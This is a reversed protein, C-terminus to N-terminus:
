YGRTVDVRNLVDQGGVFRHLNEVFIEVKAQDEGFHGGASHQTLIVNPMSWLPSEVPLPEKETVDLVAGALGGDQLSAILAREDTTNGRGVSAYLSNSAMAKFFSGDVFKDATGPLTNILIAAGPLATLIEERGRLQAESNTRAALSVACGFGGLMKKLAVGIAGAGLIIVKKGSLTDMTTRLTKGVWTKQSQLRVIEPVNRYFALIGAMMTEACKTAYYDGVNAAVSATVLGKYQDFGASDLQWFKIAPKHEFWKRPPNGLLADAQLFADSAEKLSHDHFVLEHSALEKRLKENLHTDLTSYIFIRM